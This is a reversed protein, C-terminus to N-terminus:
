ADEQKGAQQASQAEIAKRAEEIIRDLDGRSLRGFLAEFVVVASLAERVLVQYLVRLFLILLLGTLLAQQVAAGPAYTWWLIGAKILFATAGFTGVVLVGVIAEYVALAESM